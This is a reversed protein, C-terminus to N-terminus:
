EVLRYKGGNEAALGKMFGKAMSKDEVIGLPKGDGAVFAITHIKVARALNWKRVEGLIQNFDITKGTTPYGDSLFYITDCSPDRFAEELAGYSNTAGEPKLGAVAKKAAAKTSASATVLKEKWSIAKDSFIVVNFRAHSPLEEIVRTIERQMIEFRNLGRPRKDSKESGTEILMSASVDLVFVARASLIEDYLKPAREETGSVVVEGKAAGGKGSFDYGDRRTSWWNRWDAATELGREGTLAELADQCDAALRREDKGKDPDLGGYLELLADVTAIERRRALGDIAAAAVQWTRDRLAGRLVKTALDGERLAFARVIVVREGWEKARDLEKALWAEAEKSKLRSLLRLSAEAVPYTVDPILTIKVLVKAADESDDKALAELAEIRKTEDTGAEQWAQNFAKVAKESADLGAGALGVAAALAALLALAARVATRM